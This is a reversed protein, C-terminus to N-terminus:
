DAPYASVFSKIMVATEYAHDIIFAHYADLEQCSAHSNLGIFKEILAEQHLPSRLASVLLIPHHCPHDLQTADIAESKLGIEPDFLWQYGNRVRRVAHDALIKMIKKSPHPQVPRFRYREYVADMSLMTRASLGRRAELWTETKSWQMLPPDLLCVSEVLQPYRLATYYCLVAGLSHGVLVVPQDGFCSKIKAAYDDLTYAAQHSSLGMGPLDLAIVRGDLYPAVWSWWVSNALGGHVCVYRVDGQGWSRMALVEQGTQRLVLEGLM